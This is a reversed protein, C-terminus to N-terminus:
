WSAWLIVIILAVMAALSAIIIVFRLIERQLTTMSAPAVSSLKAIRGSYTAQSVFVSKPSLFGLRVLCHSRRDPLRSWSWIRQCLADRAICHEEDLLFCVIM